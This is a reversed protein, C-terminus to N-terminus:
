YRPVGADVALSWQDIGGVLSRAGRVGAAQLLAAATLSRVGHHCYVVVPVEAGGGEAIRDDLLEFLEEAREEVEGLPMLVAGELRCLRWEDPERVDVVIPKVDGAGSLLDRVEFPTIELGRRVRKGAPLGRDDHGVNRARGFRM